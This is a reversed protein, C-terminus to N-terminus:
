RKTCVYMNYTLDLKEHGEKRFAKSRIFNINGQMLKVTQLQALAEIGVQTESAGVGVKGLRSRKWAEWKQLLILSVSPQKTRLLWNRVNPSFRSKATGDDVLQPLSYQLGIDMAEKMVFGAKDFEDKWESHTLISPKHALAAYYELVSQESTSNHCEGHSTHVVDDVVILTGGPDIVSALNSLTVSINRSFSLSEIAVAASFKHHEQLSPSDFSEQEFHIRELDMEHEAALRRANLIEASSIAIGTYDIRALENDDSWRDEAAGALAYLTGGIGCGIDLVRYYSKSDANDSQMAELLRERVLQNITTDGLWQLGKKLRGDDEHPAWWPEFTPKSFANKLVVPERTAITHMAFPGQGFEIDESRGHISSLQRRMINRSDRSCKRRTCNRLESSRASAYDRFYAWLTAEAARCAEEQEKMQACPVLGFLFKDNARESSDFTYGLEVMTKQMSSLTHYYAAVTAGAITAVIALIRFKRRKRRRSIRQLAQKRMTTCYSVLESASPWDEMENTEFTKKGEQERAQQAALLGSLIIPTLATKPIPQKRNGKGTLYSVAARFQDANGYFRLEENLYEESLIEDMRVALHLLYLPDRLGLSSPSQSGHRRKERRKM